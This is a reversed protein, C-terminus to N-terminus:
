RERRILLSWGKKRWINEASAIEALQKDLNASASHKSSNHSHESFCFTKGITTQQALCLAAICCIEAFVHRKSRFRVEDPATFRKCKM